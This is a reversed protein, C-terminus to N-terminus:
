VEIPATKLRIVASEQHYSAWWNRLDALEPVGSILPYWYGRLAEKTVFTRSKRLYEIWRLEDALTDSAPDSWPKAATPMNAAPVGFDAELHLGNEGNLTSIRDTLLDGAAQEMRNHISEVRREVYDYLLEVFETSDAGRSTDLLIQELEGILLKQGLPPLMGETIIKEAQRRVIATQADYARFKVSNLRREPMGTRTLEYDAPTTM